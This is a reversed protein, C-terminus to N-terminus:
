SLTYDGCCSLLMAQQASESVIVVSNSVLELDAFEYRDCVIVNAPYRESVKLHDDLAKSLVVHLKDTRSLQMAVAYQIQASTQGDMNTVLDNGTVKRKVFDLIHRRKDIM